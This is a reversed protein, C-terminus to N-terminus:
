LEEPSRYLFVKNVGPAGILFDEFGDGDVDGDAAIAGGFGSGAQEEEPQLILDPNSVL